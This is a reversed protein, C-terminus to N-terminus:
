LTHIYNDPITSYYRVDTYHYVQLIRSYNAQFILVIRKSCMARIEHRKCYVNCYVHKKKVTKKNCIANEQRKLEYVYMYGVVQWPIRALSSDDPIGAKPSVESESVGTQLEGGLHDSSMRQSYKLPAKTTRGAETRSVIAYHQAQRRRSRGPQLLLALQGTTYWSSECSGLPGRAGCLCRYYWELTGNNSSSNYFPTTRVAHIQFEDFGIFPILKVNESEICVRPLLPTPLM